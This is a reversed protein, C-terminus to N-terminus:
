PDSPMSWSGPFIEIIQLELIANGDNEVAFVTIAVVSFWLM